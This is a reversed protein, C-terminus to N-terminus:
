EQQEAVNSYRSGYVATEVAVAHDHCKIADEDTKESAYLARTSWYFKQDPNQEIYGKLPEIQTSDRYSEVIGGFTENQMMDYLVQDFFYVPYYGGTTEAMFRGQVAAYDEPTENSDPFKTFYIKVTKQGDQDLDEVFQSFYTEMAGITEEDVKQHAYFSIELDYSPRNANEYIISGGAILCFVVLIIWWKYYTWIYQIKEKWSFNKVMEKANKEQQDMQM